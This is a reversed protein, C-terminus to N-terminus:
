VRWWLTESGMQSLSDVKDSLTRNLAQRITDHKLPKDSGDHACADGIQRVTKADEAGLGLAAFVRDPATAYRVAVADAGEATVEVSYSIEPNPSEDLATVSRRVNLTIPDISNGTVEFMVDVAPDADRRPKAEATIVVRAWELLGAGSIRGEREAGTQRNYHHGVLLASGVTSCAVQLPTLAAGMDFLQSAKAGVLYKYAPDIIVLGPSIADLESELREVDRIADFPLPHVYLWDELDAANRELSAAIADIRRWLRPESDESTLVLVRCRTTPFRGFWPEGLAAGVALDLLAFTKGVGKPGALVGYDDSTLIGSVRWVTPRAAIRALADSRTLAGLRREVRREDAVAQLRAVEVPPDIM